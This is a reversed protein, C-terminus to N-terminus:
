LYSQKFLAFFAFVGVLPANTVTTPETCQYNSRADTYGDNEDPSVMAGDLVNPNPENRNFWEEYGGKCTVPTPDKKISVISAGRHHVQKPFNSGFGVMYSMNKPNVGLIYDVQSRVSTLLDKPKVLGAPCDLSAHKNAILYNSYATTVFTATAVYQVNNWPLFWLLGGPTKKVNNDAKQICSCIFAEAQDKYDGWVDEASIKGELVLKAVLVQAGVFKDDWSFSSRTGGTNEANELFDLYTKKNTARHLWIAAWLMEDEYGSSAYIKGAEPISNQYLGPHKRAFNFLQEAHALLLASYRPNAWRFSISAAALAAATEAALDSGPHQDDIRFVTRPTTMDEPREWCEHDSDCDGIEGYLLDPRPHAKLLYDTGWKIANLANMLENKARLHNRFELTSWSLMTITFAMPFGLKLNDGADYYGGVLDIHGARGDNLASDGRWQVRQNRPLKGSRQAEYFLLSKKLAEGYNLSTASIGAFGNLFTSM